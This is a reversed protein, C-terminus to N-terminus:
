DLLDQVAKGTGVVAVAVGTLAAVASAFKAAGGARHRHVQLWAWHPIIYVTMSTAFAGVLALLEAFNIHALAMAAASAIGAWRALVAWRKYFLGWAKGRRPIGVSRCWTREVTSYGCYYVVAFTPILQVAYLVVAVRDAVRHPDLDASIDAAVRGGHTTYSRLCGAIGVLLYLASFALLCLFSYLGVRHPAAATSHLDLSLVVVGENCFASISVVLPTNPFTFDSYNAFYNVVDDTSTDHVVDGLLVAVFAVGVVVGAVSAPALFDLNDFAALAMIPILAVGMWMFESQTQDMGPTAFATMNDKIFRLYAVCSGWMSLVISAISIYEVPRGVAWKMVNAYDFANGDVDRGCLAPDPKEGVTPHGAAAEKQVTRKVEILRLISFQTLAMSLCFLIVGGCVAGQQLMYPIAMMGIGWNGRLLTFFAEPGGIQRAKEPASAILPSGPHTIPTSDTSPHGSGDADGTLPLSDYTSLITHAM